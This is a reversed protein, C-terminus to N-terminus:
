RQLTNWVIRPCLLTEETQLLKIWAFLDVQIVQAIIVIVTGQKLGILLKFDIDTDIDPFGSVMPSNLFHSSVLTCSVLVIPGLSCYQGQEVDVTYM